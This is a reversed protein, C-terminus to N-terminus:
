VGHQARKRAALLTISDSINDGSIFEGARREQLLTRLADLEQEDTLAILPEESM